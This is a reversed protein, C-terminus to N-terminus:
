PTDGDPPTSWSAFGPPRGGAPHAGAAVWQLGALYADASVVRTSDLPSSGHAERWEAPLQKWTGSYWMLIVNRAIPGITPDALIQTSVAEDDREPLSRFTALLRDTLERSVVEDLTRLHARTVGTGLLQVRNFGTLCVSLALFDDLRDSM